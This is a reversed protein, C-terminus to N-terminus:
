IRVGRTGSTMTRKGWAKLDDWKRYLQIFNSIRPAFQDSHSMAVGQIMRNIDDLQYERLLKGAYERNSKQQSTVAYGVVTEWETFLRDIDETPVRPAAVRAAARAPKSTISVQKTNSTKILNYKILNYKILHSSTDIGYKKAIDKLEIPWEIYGILEQPVNQLIDDIGQKIKPSKYNQHKIAKRLMVWGNEYIVRTELRTLMRKIEEQEIGTENAITRLSLEYIGALNTRENTLFYLFLYRDLPNLEDVVWPDSWFATSIMRQKSM